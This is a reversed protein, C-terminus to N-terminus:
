FSALMDGLKMASDGDLVSVFCVSFIGIFLYCAPQLIELLVFQCCLLHVLFMTWFVCLIEAGTVM